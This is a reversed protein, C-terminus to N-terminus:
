GRKVEALAYQLICRARNFELNRGVGYPELYSIAHQLTIEPRPHSEIIRLIADARKAACCLSWVFFLCGVAIVVLIVMLAIIM